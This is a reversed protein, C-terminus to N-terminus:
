VVSKRDAITARNEDIISQLARGREVAAQVDWFRREALGTLDHLAVAATGTEGRVDRLERTTEDLEGTLSAIQAAALAAADQLAAMTADRRGLDVMLATRRAEVAEVKQELLRQEIAFSARLGDREAVIEEMSLPVLQTLRRTTLRIARRWVAPLCAM